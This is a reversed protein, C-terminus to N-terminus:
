RLLNLYQIFAVTVSIFFRLIYQFTGGVDWRHPRLPRGRHKAVHFARGRMGRHMPWQTPVCRGRIDGDRRHWAVVAQRRVEETLLTWTADGYRINFACSHERDVRINFDINSKRSM